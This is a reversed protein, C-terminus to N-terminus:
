SSILTNPIMEKSVSKYTVDDFNFSKATVDCDYIQNRFFHYWVCQYAALRNATPKYTGLYTTILSKADEVSLGGSEKFTSELIDTYCGYGLMDFLRFAQRGINFGHVDKFKQNESLSLNLHAIELCRNVVTALSFVPFQAIGMDMASYAQKRQVLTQYANHSVLALPVHVFYYNEKIHAFNATNCPLSRTFGDVAMRYDSNPVTDRVGVVNLMGGKQTFNEFNSLDFGTTPVRGDPVRNLAEMINRM